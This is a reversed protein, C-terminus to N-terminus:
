EDGERRIAALARLPKNMRRRIANLTRGRPTKTCGADASWEKLTADLEELKVLAAEAKDLLDAAELCRKDHIVGGLTIADDMHRGQRLRESMKM